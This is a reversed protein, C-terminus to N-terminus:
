IPLLRGASSVDMAQGGTRMVTVTQAIQALLEAPWGRPM